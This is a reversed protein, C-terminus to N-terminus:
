RPFRGCSLAHATHVYADRGALIYADNNPEQTSLLRDHLVLDASPSERNNRAVKAIAFGHDGFAAGHSPHGGVHFHRGRATADALHEGLSKRTLCQELVNPGRTAIAHDRKAGAEGAADHWDLDTRALAPNQLLTREKGRFTADLQANM